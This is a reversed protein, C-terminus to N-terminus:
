SLSVKQRRIELEAQQWLHYARAIMQWLGQIEIQKQELEKRLTENKLQLARNETLTELHYTTCHGM